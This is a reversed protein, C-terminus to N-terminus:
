LGVGANQVTINVNAEHGILFHAQAAGFLHVKAFEGNIKSIGDVAALQALNNVLGKVSAASGNLHLTYSSVGHRGLVGQNIRGQHAHIYDVAEISHLSRLMGLAGLAENPHFGHLGIHGFCGQVKLNAVVALGHIFSAFLENSFSHFINFGLVGLSLHLQLNHVNVAINRVGDGGFVAGAHVMNKLSHALQADSGLVNSHATAGIAGKNGGLTNGSRVIESARM